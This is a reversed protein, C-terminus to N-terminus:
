CSFGELAMQLAAEEEASTQTCARWLQKLSWLAVGKLGKKAPRNQLTRLHEKIEARIIKKPPLQTVFPHQLLEEASGRESPDKKLCSELFSVFNQSWNNSQLRPPQAERILHEVPYEDAYPPKGEAMEIATIGLSWIDCKTDYALRQGKQRIAEPAMWHATGDAEHCLGTQPDLDWSNGFDITKVKATETLMINLSKIDRHVARNKHIHHLGKLVEKCVYGIWTEKLSQGNTRSILTHLSGGGCYELVIELHESSCETLPARYYAGYYSAINKHGGFQQLFKLERMVSEEDRSINAIKVAVVGRRHHRGKYVDGTGGEGLLVDKTLRGDPPKYIESLSRSEAQPKRWPACFLM